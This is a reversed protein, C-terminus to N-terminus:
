FQNSVAGLDHKGLFYASPATRRYRVYEFPPDTILHFAEADLCVAAKWRTKQLELFFDMHEYEIKIQNDWEIDRFMERKALFINPVQDAIVYKIGEATELIERPAPIRALLRGRREFRVGKAYNEGAFFAGREYKLTAAVLGINENSDLVAKMRKLSDASRIVVDDDSVLLYGEKAQRLIANRGVSIGVDFPLTIVCHGESKLKAYFASKRDDQPGDDAVYFKYPMGFKVFTAQYTEITRYLTEERMFTKIGVAIKGELVVPSPDAFRGLIRQQIETMSVGQTYPLFVARGGYRRVHEEGPCQSRNNGHVIYDPRVNAQMLDRTPDKGTQKMVEDVCGLAEIIRVRQEYPVIPKPAYQMVAEDTMVGVTLRGMKKCGELINLHGVHFMDWAGGIFVSKTPSLFNADIALNDVWYRWNRQPTRWNKGYQRALYEEVPNPVFCRKGRFMVEKPEAFLEKPLTRPVFRMYEGFRGLEDPSYAGWWYVDDKEFYFFLDLKIKNYFFSLETKQGDHEWKKYVTFGAALFAEVLQDWAGLQGPGIGLDVDADWEIFDGDRAFGLCTGGDLWWKLGLDDLIRIAKELLIDKDTYKFKSYDAFQIPNKRDFESYSLRLGWKGAFITHGVPRSRYQQYGEKSVDRRHYMWTDPTYAVKWPNKRIIPKGDVLEYKLNLFYDMHEYATKFQPDWKFSDWVERRMMFVNLVLECFYYKVGKPTEKWTPNKVRETHKTDGDIWTNGEYHQEVKDNLKLLGGVIGVRPETDLINRWKQLATKKAFVVDDEIIVLFKYKPPILKISENRVGAVGLDYPLAFYECVNATAFARKEDTHRGNDGIFVPIKPYYKRVSEICRKLLDDRLFTTVLIATDNM